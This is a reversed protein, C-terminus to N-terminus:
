EPNRRTAGAQKLWWATAALPLTWALWADAAYFLEYYRPTGFMAFLALYVRFFVAGSTTATMLLMAARHRASQGRRIARWGFLFLGTWVMGQAAFGLASVRTVPATLAVPFASLGAILLDLGAARGAWRHWPARGRLLLAAPVLILALGGTIMHIPFILPLMQAKIALEEPFDDVMWPARLAKLATQIVFLALAALVIRLLM